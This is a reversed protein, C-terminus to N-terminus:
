GLQVSAALAVALPTCAARDGAAVRYTSKLVVRRTLMDAPPREAPLVVLIRHARVEGPYEARAHGSAHPDRRDLMGVEFRQGQGSQRREREFSLHEDICAHADRLRQGLEAHVPGGAVPNPPLQRLKAVVGSTLVPSVARIKDGSVSQGYDAIQRCRHLYIPHHSRKSGAALREGGHPAPHVGFM